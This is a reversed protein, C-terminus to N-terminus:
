DDDVIRCLQIAGVVDRSEYLAKRARVFQAMPQGEDILYFAAGKWSVLEDHFVVGESVFGLSRYRDVQAQTFTRWGTRKVKSM